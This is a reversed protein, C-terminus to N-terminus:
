EGLHSALEVLILDFESYAEIFAELHEEDACERYAKYAFAFKGGCEVYKEAEPTYNDNIYELMESVIPRLAEMIEPVEGMTADPNHMRDNILFIRAIYDNLNTM